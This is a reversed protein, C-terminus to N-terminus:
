KYKVSCGYPQTEAPDPAAGALLAGIAGNVYNVADDKRGRPNDDIAGQYRLKGQADIVFMHPTTRAGYLRGLKGEADQLTPYDFGQEAQWAKTAESTNSHTSNVALWVVEKAGLQKALKEMTDASYHRKVYPCDQNTWELVVAKGSYGSLSHEVGNQDVAKFDPAASGLEVEAGATGALVASILLSVFRTYM